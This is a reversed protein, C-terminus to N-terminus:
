SKLDRIFELLSPTPDDEPLTINFIERQVYLWFNRLAPHYKLNFVFHMKFCADLAALFSDFKYIVNDCFTYYNQEQFIDNNLNIIFPQIQDNKKIANERIHLVEEDINYAGEITYILAQQADTYSYKIRNRKNNKNIQTHM